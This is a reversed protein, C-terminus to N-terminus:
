RIAPANWQQQVSQRGAYLDFLVFFFLAVTLAHLLTYLRMVIVSSIYM